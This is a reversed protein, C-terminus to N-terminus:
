LDISEEEDVRGDNDTDVSIKIRNKDIVTITVHQNEENYYKATGSVLDHYNELVLPTKSGDYQEDVRYTIGNHVLKGSVDYSSASSNENITEYSVLDISEYKEGTSSIAKITSKVESTEDSINKITMTSNKFVTVIETTELNEFTSDELFTISTTEFDEGKVVLSLTGNIKESEEICEESVITAKIGDNKIQQLLVMENTDFDIDSSITQTGGGQCSEITEKQYIKNKNEIKSSSTESSGTEKVMSLVENDKNISSAFSKIEESVTPSVSKSTTDNSSKSDSGCGQLILVLAITSVITKTM